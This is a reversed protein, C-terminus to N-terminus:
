NHIYMYLDFTKVPYSQRSFITLVVWVVWGIKMKELLQRWQSLPSQDKITEIEFTLTRQVLISQALNPLFQCLLEPSSTSFTFLNHCHCGLLCYVFKSWFLARSGKARTFKFSYRPNALIWVLQKRKKASKLNKQWM